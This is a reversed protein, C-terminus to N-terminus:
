LMCELSHKPEGWSAMLKQSDKVEVGHCSTVQSLQSPTCSGQVWCHECCLHVTPMDINM